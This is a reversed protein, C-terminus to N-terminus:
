GCGRTKGGPRGANRNGPRPAYRNSQPPQEPRRNEGGKPGGGSHHCKKQRVAACHRIQAFVYPLAAAVFPPNQAHDHESREHGHQVHRHHVDSQRRDHRGEADADRRGFPDDRGVHNRHRDHKRRCPPKRVPEAVFADIDESQHQEREARPEAALSRAVREQDPRPGQLAYSAADYLRQSQRDHRALELGRLATQRQTQPRHGRRSRDREPRQQAAIQDIRVAPVLYEVHVHRDSHQGDQERCEDLLLPLVLRAAREIPLPERGDHEEHRQRDIRQRPAIRRRIGAPPARGFHDATEDDSPRRQRPEDDRLQAIGRRQQLDPQERFAVESNRHGHQREEGYAHEAAGIQQREVHLPSQSVRCQRRSAHEQGYTHNLAHERGNRTIQGAIDPWQQQARRANQDHRQTEPEGATEREVGRVPM